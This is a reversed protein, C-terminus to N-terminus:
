FESSWSTAGRRAAEQRKKEAQREREEECAKCRLAFPLARLRGEAIEGECEYCNGYEDKGLRALADELKKITDQKMQALAFEIDAKIEADDDEVSEDIVSPASAVQDQLERLRGQLFLKLADRREQTMAM